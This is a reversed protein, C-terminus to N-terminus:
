FQRLKTFSYVVINKSLRFVNFNNYNISNRFSGEKYETHIIVLTLLNNSFHRQKYCICFMLVTKSKLM